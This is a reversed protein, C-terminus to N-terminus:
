VEMVLPLIMPRRQTETFIFRELEDHIKTKAYNWDVRGPKSTLVKRTLDAIDHIIKENERSL